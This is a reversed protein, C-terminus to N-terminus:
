FLVPSSFSELVQSADLYHWDGGKWNQRQLCDRRINVNNINFLQHTPCPSLHNLGAKELFTVHISVMTSEFDVRVQEELVAFRPEYSIPRTDRNRTAVM